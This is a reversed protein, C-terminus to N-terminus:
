EPRSEPIVNDDLRRPHLADTEFRRLTLPAEWGDEDVLYFHEDTRLLLTGQVRRPAGGPGTVYITCAQGTHASQALEAAISDGDEDGRFAVLGPISPTPLKPIDIFTPSITTEPAPPLPINPRYDAVPPRRAYASFLLSGVFVLLFFYLTKSMIGAAERWNDQKAAALSQSQAQVDTLKLRHGCGVCYQGGIQNDTECRPCKM